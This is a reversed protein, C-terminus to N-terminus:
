KVNNILSIAENLSVQKEYIEQMKKQERYYLYITLGTMLGAGLLAFGFVKKNM